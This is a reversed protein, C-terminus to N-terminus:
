LKLKNLIEKEMKSIPIWFKLAMELQSYIEDPDNYDIKKTDYTGDEITKQNYKYIKNSTRQCANYVLINRLMMYAIFIWFVILIKYIM